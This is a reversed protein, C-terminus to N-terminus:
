RQSRKTAFDAYRPYGQSLIELINSSMSCHLPCYFPGIHSLTPMM